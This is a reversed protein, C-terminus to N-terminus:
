FSGDLPPIGPKTRKTGGLGAALRAGWGRLKEGHVYFIPVVVLIFITSTVLGGVTCLALSTWIQRKGEGAVILLM